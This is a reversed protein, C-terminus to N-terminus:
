PIFVNPIPFLPITELKNGSKVITLLKTSKATAYLNIEYVRIERNTQGFLIVTGPRLPSSKILKFAM